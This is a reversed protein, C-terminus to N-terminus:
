INKSLLGRIELISYNQLMDIINQPQVEKFEDCLILFKELDSDQLVGNYANDIIEIYINDDCCNFEAKFTIICEKYDQLTKLDYHVFEGTEMDKILLMIEKFDRKM